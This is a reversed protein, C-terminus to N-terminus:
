DIRNLVIKQKLTKQIGLTDRHGINIYIEAILPPLLNDIIHVAFVPLVMDHLDHRESRHRCAHYDAVDPPHQIIRIRKHVIYRLSDRHLQIDRNLLRQLHIRLQAAHVIRVLLRLLQNIHGKAQLSQGPVRGDM